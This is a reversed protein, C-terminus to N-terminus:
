QEAEPLEAIDDLVAAPYGLSRLVDFLGIVAAADAVGLACWLEDVKSAPLTRRGALFNSFHQPTVGVQAALRRKELGRLVIICRMARLSRAPTELNDVM